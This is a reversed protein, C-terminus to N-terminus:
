RVAYIILFIIGFILGMVLSLVGFLSAIAKMNRRYDDVIERELARKVMEKDNM